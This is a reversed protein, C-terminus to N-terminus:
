DNLIVNLIELLIQHIQYPFVNRRPSAKINKNFTFIWVKEWLKLVYVFSHNNSSFKSVSTCDCNLKWILEGLPLVNYLWFINEFLIFEKMGCILLSKVVGAVDSGSRFNDICEVWLM